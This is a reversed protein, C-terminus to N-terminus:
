PLSSTKFIMPLFADGELQWFVSTNEASLSTPPPRPELSNGDAEETLRLGQTLDYVLHQRIRLCSVTGEAEPKNIGDSPLSRGKIGRGRPIPSVWAQPSKPNVVWSSLFTTHSAKLGRSGNLAQCIGTSAPYIQGFLSHTRKIINPTKDRTILERPERRRLVGM